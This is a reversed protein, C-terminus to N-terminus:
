ASGLQGELFAEVIELTRNRSVERLELELAQRHVAKLANLRRRFEAFPMDDVFRFVEDPSAFEAIDIFSAKPLVQYITDTGRYIPLCNASVADWLKETVYFDAICNEPCFVFNYNLLKSLKDKRWDAPRGDTEIAIGDPWKRGYVDLRGTRSGELVFETRMHSLSIDSDGIMLSQKHRTMVAVIKKNGFAVNCDAESVIPGPYADLNVDGDSPGVVLGKRAFNRFAFYYNDTLVNHNHVNFIHIEKGSRRVLPTQELSTFPEPSWVLNLRGFSLLDDTLDKSHRVAIVDAEDPTRVDRLGIRKRDHRNDLGPGKTDTPRFVKFM